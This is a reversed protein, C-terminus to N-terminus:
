DLILREVGGFGVYSSTIVREGPELGHLVEFVEPNQRGLRIPRRLAALGDDDLVYAWTGGTTEFFGGRPLLTAESVDGLALRLRLRQGRRIGDPGPGDFALDVDFRGDRVEPYAKQVVVAYSTGALEFEGGHGPAVRAIYLEDVAARVKFGSLIDVQGLRQGSTKLQGVEDETVYMLPREPDQLTGNVLVDARALEEVLPVTTGGDRVAEMGAVAARRM